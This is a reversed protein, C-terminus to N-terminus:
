RIWHYKVDKHILIASNTFVIDGVSYELPDSTKINIKMPDVCHDRHGDLQDYRWKNLHRTLSTFFSMDDRICITDEVIYVGGNRLLPFLCLFSFIMDERYHSGDDLIVDFPGLEESVRRLFAEDHANGVRVYMGKGADEHVAANPNIDVGVITRANHFYERMARLSGGNLVGIELYRLPKSRLPSLYREYYKGYNHFGPNKDTDHRSLVSSLSAEAM